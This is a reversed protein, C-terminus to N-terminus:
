VSKKKKLPTACVVAWLLNCGIHKQPGYEGAKGSYSAVTYGAVVFSGFPIERVESWLPLKDKLTPLDVHFDFDLNTADYIPVPNYM